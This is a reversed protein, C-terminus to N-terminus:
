PTDATTLGRAAELGLPLHPQSAQILLGQLRALELASSQADLRSGPKGAALRRIANEYSAVADVWAEDTKLASTSLPQVAVSALEVRAGDFSPTVTRSREAQKGAQAPASFADNRRLLVFFVAALVVLGFGVMLAHPAQAFRRLAWSIAFLLVASVVLPWLNVVPRSRRGALDDLKPFFDLPHM